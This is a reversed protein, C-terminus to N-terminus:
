FAGVLHNLRGGPTDFTVSIADFRVQVAGLKAARLWQAAANRVRAVKRADISQAPTM